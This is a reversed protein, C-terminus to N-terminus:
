NVSEISPSLTYLGKKIHIIDGDAIARKVLAYRTNASGGVLHSIELTTFLPTPVQELIAKVLRNM